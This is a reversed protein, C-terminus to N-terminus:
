QTGAQQTVAQTVANNTGLAESFAQFHAIALQGNAYESDKSMARYLIYSVLPGIYALDLDLTDTIDAVAPPRESFKAEM